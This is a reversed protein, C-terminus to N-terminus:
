SPEHRGARRSALAEFEIRAYELWPHKANMTLRYERSALRDALGSALDEPTEDSAVIVTSSAEEMCVQRVREILELGLQPEHAFVALQRAFIQSRRFDERIQEAFSELFRRKGQATARYCPKPQRTGGEGEVEEVLGSAQLAKLSTYVYSLSSLRLVGDFHRELRNALEYGYSPREIVLGLLAWQVSSRMPPDHGQTAREPTMFRMAYVM